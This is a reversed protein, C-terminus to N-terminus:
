ARATRLYMLLRLETTAKAATLWYVAPAITTSISTMPSRPPRPTSSMDPRSKVRSNTEATIPIAM